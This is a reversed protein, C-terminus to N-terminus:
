AEFLDRLVELSKLEPFSPLHLQYYRIIYQVCRNRENRSMRFVHMTEYNLRMLVRMLKSDSENLFLSHTPVCSVFNGAQLDFYKGDNEDMNPSFGLFLTLQLMFVIHFNAYGGDAKDLWLISYVLFQFLHENEVENRTSFCIFEALFTSLCLKLPSFPISSFPIAIAVEKFHHLQEKARYDFEFDLIALPQFYQRKIKARASRSITLIFSQRGHSFTMMDVIQQADGYKTVRLVIGRTKVLM